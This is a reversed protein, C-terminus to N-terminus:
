PGPNVMNINKNLDYQTAQSPCLNVALIQVHKVSM